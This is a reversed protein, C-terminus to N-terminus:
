DLLIEYWCKGSTSTRLPVIAIGAQSSPSLWTMAVRDHDERTCISTSDGSHGFREISRTQRGRHGNYGRCIDYHADRKESSIPSSLLQGDYGIYIDSMSHGLEPRYVVEFVPTSCQRFDMPTFMRGQPVFGRAIIQATDLKVEDNERALMGGCLPEALLQSRKIRGQQRAAALERANIRVDRLKRRKVDHSSYAANAPATGSPQVKFYKNKEKDVILFM